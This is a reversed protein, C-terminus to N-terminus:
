SRVGIFRRQVGKGPVRMDSVDYKSGCKCCSIFPGVEDHGEEGDRYIIGRLDSDGTVLGSVYLTAGCKECLRSREQLNHDTAM